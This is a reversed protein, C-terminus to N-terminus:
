RSWSPWYQEGRWATVRRLGHGNPHMMWLHATGGTPRSSSYLLWSGGPSWVPHNDDLANRTLRLRHSGDADVLWIEDTPNTASTARDSQFALRRGDPSWAPAWDVPGASGFTIAHRGGGGADMVAIRGSSVFAIRRGDPSWAPVSDLGPRTLRRKGGGDARMKWIASKGSRSVSYAIWRGDPSWAGAGEAGVGYTLRRVHSGNVNMVYLDSHRDFLIRRGDPSLAPGDARASGPTVAHRGTGDAKMVWVQTRGGIGSASSFAILGNPGQGASAASACAAAVGLAIFSSRM